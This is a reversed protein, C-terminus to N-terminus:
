NEAILTMLWLLVNFNEQIIVIKVLTFIKHLCYPWKNVLIHINHSSSNSSNNAYSSRNEPVYFFYSINTEFYISIKLKFSLDWFNWKGEITMLNIGLFTPYEGNKISEDCIRTNMCVYICIYTCVLSSSYRKKEKVYTVLV